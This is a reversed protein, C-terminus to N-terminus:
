HLVLSLWGASESSKEESEIKAPLPFSCEFQGVVVAFDVHECIQAADSHRLSEIAHAKPRM